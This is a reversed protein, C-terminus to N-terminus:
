ASSSAPTTAPPPRQVALVHVGGRGGDRRRPRVHLRDHPQRQHGDAAGRGPGAGDRADGQGPPYAARHLDAAAAAPRHGRHRHDLVPHPDRRRRDRLTATRCCAPRWKRSASGNWLLGVNQLIFSVHRRGHDAARAEARQRAATPWASSRWTSRGRLVGDHRGDPSWCSGPRSRRTTQGLWQDMLISGFVSGLM